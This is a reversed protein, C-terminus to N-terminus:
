GCETYRVTVIKAVTPKPSMEADLSAARTRTVNWIIRSRITSPRPIANEDSCDIDAALFDAVSWL